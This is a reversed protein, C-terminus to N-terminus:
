SKANPVAYIGVATAISLGINLWLGADHGDLAGCAAVNAALGVAGVLFKRARAAFPPPPAAHDPQGPVNPM